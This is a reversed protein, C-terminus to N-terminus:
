RTPNGGATYKPAGVLANPTRPRRAVYLSGILATAVIPPTFRFTGASRSSPHYPNASANSIVQVSEEPSSSQDLVSLQHGLSPMGPRSEGLAAAVERKM